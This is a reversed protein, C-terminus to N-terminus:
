KMELPATLIRELDADIFANYRARMINSQFKSSTVGSLKTYM